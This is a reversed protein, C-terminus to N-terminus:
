ASPLLTEALCASSKEEIALAAMFTQSSSMGVTPGHHNPLLAAACALAFHARFRISVLM